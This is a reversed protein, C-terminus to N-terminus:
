SYNDNHNNYISINDTYSFSNTIPMITENRMIVFIIVMVIARVIMVTIIIIIITRITLAIVIIIITMIM